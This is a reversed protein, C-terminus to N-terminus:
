AITAFNEQRGLPFVAKKGMIVLPDTLDPCGWPHFKLFGQFDRCKARFFSQVSM